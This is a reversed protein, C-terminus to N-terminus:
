VRRYLETSSTGNPAGKMSLPLTGWHGSVPGFNMDRIHIVQGTLIAKAALSTEPDMSVQGDDYVQVTAPDVDYSAAMRQAADEKTGMALAAAFAGCLEASKRLIVDFVPQENDRSRSIVELVERTAAERELRTQVDRFQRVNEIAIVAQTAFAEVLEQDAQTFPIPDRRILGLCGIARGEHVLPVTMFSRIGDKDVHMVRVPDGRRYADTDKLDDIRLARQDLITRGMLSNGDLAWSQAGVKSSALDPGHSAVYVLETEDANVLNLAAYPSACLNAAQELIADFVPAEDERNDRIIELVRRLATAMSDMRSGSVRQDEVM